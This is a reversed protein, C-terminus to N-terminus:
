AGAAHLGRRRGRRAGGRGDRRLRDDRQPRRDQARPRRSRHLRPITRCPLGSARRTPQITAPSPWYSSPVTRLAGPWRGSPIWRGACRCSAKVPSEATRRVSAPSAASSPPAGSLAAPTRDWRPPASARRRGGGGIRQQVSGADHRHELPQPAHRVPPRGNRGDRVREPEGQRPYRRRFRAPRRVINSDERAVFGTMVRSGATTPVGGVHIIDKLAVPVGHLPGRYRGSAIERGADEAQRLASDSLVTIYARLRGDHRDIRDLYARTLEVPSVAKSRLLAAQEAVTAYHFPAHSM